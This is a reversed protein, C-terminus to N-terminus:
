SSSQTHNKLINTPQASTVRKGRVELNKLNCKCYCQRECAKWEALTCDASILYTWLFLKLWRKHSVTWEPLFRLEPARHKLPHTYQGLLSPHASLIIVLFHRQWHTTQERDLIWTADPLSLPDLQNSSPLCSCSQVFIIRLSAAAMYNACSNNRHLSM